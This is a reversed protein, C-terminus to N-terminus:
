SAGGKLARNVANRVIAEKEAMAKQLSQQASPSKIRGLAMAACARMEPDERRGLLSSKGNLLGDLFPV